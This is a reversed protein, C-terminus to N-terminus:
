DGLVTCGAVILGISIVIVIPYPPDMERFTESLGLFVAAMISVIIWLLLFILITSM